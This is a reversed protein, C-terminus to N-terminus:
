NNTQNFSPYTKLVQSRSQRGCEAASSDNEPRNHRDSFRHIGLSRQRYSYFRRSSYYDIIDNDDKISRTPNDWGIVLSM